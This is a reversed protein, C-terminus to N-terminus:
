EEEKKKKSKKGDKYGDEYGALYCTGATVMLFLCMGIARKSAEKESM